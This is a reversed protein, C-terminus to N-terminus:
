KKEEEDQYDIVMTNLIAEVQTVMNRKEENPNYVYGMMYIIRNNVEDLVTNVVCPGAMFDSTVTWLGRIFVAYHGNYKYQAMSYPIEMDIQMYSRIVKENKGGPVYEPSKSDIKRVTGDLPGPIYKELEENVRTMIVVPNFQNENRYEETFFCIGRSDKQTESSIWVFGATDKNVYYGTPCYLLIHYKNKFLDFIKTDATRRYISVLRDKEAKVFIGMIRAKEADFFENFAQVGPATIKIYKQTRAWPSDIYQMSASDVSSSIVVQLVNRHGKMNKNFHVEPLNLLDFIPEAQPLGDQEQQFYARISDGVPGKWVNENAVVLIENIKGTISPMLKKTENKCSALFSIVVLIFVVKRM